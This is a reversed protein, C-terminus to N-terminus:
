VMLLLIAVLTTALFGTTAYIAIDIKANLAKIETKLEQLTSFVTKSQEHCQALHEKLDSNVQTVTARAM